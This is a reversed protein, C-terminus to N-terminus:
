ALFANRGLLCVDYTVGFSVRIFNIKKPPESANFKQAWHNAEYQIKIDNRVAEKAAQRTDIEGTEECIYAKACYNSARTWGYKYFRSCLLCFHCCLHTFCIHRQFVFPIASLVV